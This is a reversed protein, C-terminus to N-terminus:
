QKRSNMQQRRKNAEGKEQAKRMEEEKAKIKEPDGLFVDDTHAVGEEALYFQEFFEDEEEAAQAAVVVFV